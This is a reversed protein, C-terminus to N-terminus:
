KERQKKVMSDLVEEQTFPVGEPWVEPLSDGKKRNDEVTLPQLNRYHSMRTLLNINGMGSSLPVIHDLEWVKGRNEWTMGERFQSEIHAVFTSEDCGFYALFRNKVHPAVRGKIGHLANRVRNRALSLSAFGIEQKRREMMRAARKRRSEAKQEETKSLFNKVQSRKVREPNNKTWNAIRRLRGKRRPAEAELWARETETLDEKLSLSRWKDERARHARKNSESERSKERKLWEQEEPALVEKTSLILIKKRRVGYKAMGRARAREVLVKKKEFEAQEDPTRETLNLLYSWRERWKKNRLTTVRNHKARDVERREIWAKEEETLTEKSSLLEARVRDRARREIATESQRIARIEKKEEETPKTGQVVIVENAVGSM